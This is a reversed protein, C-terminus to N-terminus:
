YEDWTFNKPFIFTGYDEEFERRIQYSLRDYNKKLYKAVEPFGSEQALKIAVEMDKLNSVGLIIGMDYMCDYFSEYVKAM